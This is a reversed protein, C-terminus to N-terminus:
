ALDKSAIGLQIVQIPNGDIDTFDMVVGGPVDHYDGCKHGSAELVLRLESASDVELGLIWGSGN